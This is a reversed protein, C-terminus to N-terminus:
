AYAPFDNVMPSKTKHCRDPLLSLTVNTPVENLGMSLHTYNVFIIIMKDNIKGGNLKTTM